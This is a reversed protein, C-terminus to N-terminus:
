KDLIRRIDNAKRMADVMSKEDSSDIMKKFAELHNIYERLAVSVQAKNQAFIPAWMEPSSKALRVTSEFGSGALNAINKENEEKNLVTLGLMFSSVHSLHSIYAVHKDHDEAGMFVTKMGVGDFLHLAKKLASEHSNKHDCIVNVAGEYLGSFAAKPGTNETGAMPHAAVYSGRQPHQKVSETLLFKTSGLDILLQDATLLDLVKAIQALLENVPTALVIVDAVKAAEEISVCRDVMGQKVAEIQHEPNKDIGLINSSLDNQRLALAFSGGMLGLGVIAVNM